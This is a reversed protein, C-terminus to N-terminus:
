GNASPGCGIAFITAAGLRAAHQRARALAAEFSDGAAHYRVFPRRGDELTEVTFVGGPGRRIVVQVDGDPPSAGAPLHTVDNM